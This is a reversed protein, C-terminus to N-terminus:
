GNAEKKKRLHKLLAKTGVAAAIAGAAAGGGIALKKKNKSAFDKAKEFRTPEPKRGFKISKIKDKTNNVFTKFRSPKPPAPPEDPKSLYDIYNLGKDVNKVIKRVKNAQHLLYGGGVIGAGALATKIPNRQIAGLIGGGGSHEIIVNEKVLDSISM